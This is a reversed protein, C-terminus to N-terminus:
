RAGTIGTDRERAVAANGYEGLPTLADTEVSGGSSVPVFPYVNGTSLIIMRARPFREAVSQLISRADAARDLFGLVDSIEKPELTAGEIRLKHVPGTIDPISSFNIRIAAGRAAPQPKGAARLYGIAEEAEALEEEVRARDTRPQVKELEARGLPSAVYRGLLECLAEFELADASAHKMSTSDANM